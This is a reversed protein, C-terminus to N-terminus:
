NASPSILLGAFTLLEQLPTRPPGEKLFTRGSKDESLIM